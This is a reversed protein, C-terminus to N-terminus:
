GGAVSVAQRASNQGPMAESAEITITREDTTAHPQGNNQSHGGAGQTPNATINGVIAQGGAHVHVHEVTVKQRGDRRMKSLTECHTSFTKTLRNLTVSNAELQPITKCAALHRAKIMALAHCLAAQIVLMAEIENKPKMGDIIAIVSNVGQELAPADCRSLVNIIHGIQANVFDRSTSGLAADLRAWTNADAEITASRDEGVTIALAPPKRRPEAQTPDRGEATVIANM